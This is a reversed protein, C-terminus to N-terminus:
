RIPPGLPIVQPAKVRREERYETAGIVESATIAKVQLTDAYSGELSLAIVMDGVHAEKPEIPYLNTTLTSEEDDEGCKVNSEPEGLKVLKCQQWTNGVPRRDMRKLVLAGDSPKWEKPRAPVGTTAARFDRREISFDNDKKIRDRLAEGPWALHDVQLTAKVWDDMSSHWATVTTGDVSAVRCNTWWGKQFDCLLDDGPHVPNGAAPIAIDGWDFPKPFGKLHVEKASAQDVEYEEYGEKGDKVIKSGATVRSVDLGGANTPPPRETRASTPGGDDSAAGSKNCAPATSCALGFGVCSAILLNRRMTSPYM